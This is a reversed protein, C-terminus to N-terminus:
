WRLPEGASGSLNYAEWDLPQNPWTICRELSPPLVQSVAPLWNAYSPATPGCVQYSPEGCGYSNLRTQCRSDESLSGSVTYAPTSSAAIKLDVSAPCVQFSIGPRRVWSVAAVQAGPAPPRHRCVMRMSGPLGSRIYPAIEAAPTKLVSSPPLVQFGVFLPNRELVMGSWSASTPWQTWRSAICGERGFVSKMCFCQSTIRVSSPPSEQRSILPSRGVSKPKTM